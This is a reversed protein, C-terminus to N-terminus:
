LCHRRINMFYKFVVFLTNEWKPFFHGENEFHSNSDNYDRMYRMSQVMEEENTELGNKVMQGLQACLEAETGNTLTKM